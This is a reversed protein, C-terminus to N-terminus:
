RKSVQSPPYGFYERFKTIFSTTLDYGVRAAIAKTTLNTEELLRHAEKMRAELHYEFLGKGFLSKFATKLKMENMHAEVALQAIPFKEATETRLREALRLLRGHQEQTLPVTSPAAQRSAVLLLLLYERVKLNFYLSQTDPPVPPRLMDQALHLADSGAARGPTGVFFPHCTPPSLVPELLPFRPLFPRLLDASWAIELHQYEQSKEFHATLATAPSQLLAFQGPRLLVSGLGQISYHLNSKLALLAVLIDSGQQALFDMPRFIDFVHFRLSFDQQDLRQFIWEGNDGRAHQTTSNALVMGRYSAPLTSSFLLGQPILQLEDPHMSCTAIVIM